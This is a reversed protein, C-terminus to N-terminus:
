PTPEKKIMNRVTITTLGWAVVAFAPLIMLLDSARFAVPYSKTLFSEAPIEILGFHQQLLSLGVGLVLGIAGGLACILYGERRFVTRIFRDTAGLARLTAREDRKELILMSLAGVISFAADILVLLAILFVGWKEYRVLRYVSASLEDRSEIRFAEGALEGLRHRLRGAAAPTESRVLIASARGPRDFLEQAAGLPVIFRESETTYDVEFVGGVPLTRTTYNDFPLLSSFSNRRVAYLRVEAGVHSRLGLRQMLARGLLAYSLDGRRLTSEGEAVTAAFPLVAGYRDDAGRLTATAQRDNSEILVREELVASWAALGEIRSLAATDLEALPFTRGEASSIRLDAEFVSGSSRIIEEFGNIVSLLVIMAAVPIAVAVVSLAAILNIVSRSKPSFLYRRAFFLALM